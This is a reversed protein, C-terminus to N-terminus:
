ENITNHKLSLKKPYYLWCFLLGPLNTLLVVFFQVIKTARDVRRKNLVVVTLLCSFVTLVLLLIFISNNWEALRWNQHPMPPKASLAPNIWRENLMHWFPSIYFGRHRYYVSFGQLLVRDAMHHHNDDNDLRYTIQEADYQGNHSMKGYLFNIITSDMLEALYIGSLNEYPKPLPIISLPVALGSETTTRIPDFVYLAATSLILEHRGKKHMGSLFSETDPLNFRLKLQQLYPDYQYLKHQTIVQNRLVVPMADFAINGIFADNNNFRSPATDQGRATSDKRGLFSMTDHSFIWNIGNVRDYLNIHQYNQLYPIQQHWPFYTLERDMDFTESMGLQRQYYDSDQGESVGLVLHEEADAYNMYDYTDSKFYYNWAVKIGAGDVLMLYLQFSFVVVVSISFFAALHFPIAINLTQLFSYSQNELNAKFANILLLFLWVTFLLAVSIIPGGLFLTTMLLLPFILVAYATRNSSLTIFCATLYFCLAMFLIYVAQIYHRWDIIYIGLYDVAATLVLYPLVMCSVLVLAGAIFLSLCLLHPKVPRNILFTWMNIPRYSRMQFMGLLFANIGLMLTFAMGVATGSKEYDDFYIGSFILLTNLGATILLWKHFRLYEHKILEFM